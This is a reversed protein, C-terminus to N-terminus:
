QKVLPSARPEGLQNTKIRIFRIIIYKKFALPGLVDFIINQVTLYVFVFECICGTIFHRFYGVHAMLAVLHERHFRLTAARDM